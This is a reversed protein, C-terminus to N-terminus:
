RVKRGCEIRRFRVLLISLAAKDRKEPLATGVFGRFESKLRGVNNEVDGFMQDVKATAAADFHGEKLLPRVRGILEM